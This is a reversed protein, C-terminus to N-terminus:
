NSQTTESNKNKSNSNTTQTVNVQVMTIDPKKLREILEEDAMLLAELDPISLSHDRTNVFIIFPHYDVNLEDLIVNTYKSDSIPVGVTALSDALKKIQLLYEKNCNPTWHWKGMKTREQICLFLVRTPKISAELISYPFNKDKTHHRTLTTSKGSTTPQFFPPTPSPLVTSPPSKSSFLHTKQKHYSATSPLIVQTVSTLSSTSRVSM